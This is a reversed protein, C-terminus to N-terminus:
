KACFHSKAYWLQLFVNNMYVELKFFFFFVISFM